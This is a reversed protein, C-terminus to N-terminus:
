LRGLNRERERLREGWELAEPPDGGRSQARSAMQERRARAAATDGAAEPADVIQTSFPPPSLCAYDPAYLRIVAGITCAAWSEGRVFADADADLHTAGDEHRNLARDGMHASTYSAGGGGGASPVM